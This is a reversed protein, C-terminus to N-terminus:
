FPFSVSLHYFNAAFANEAEINFLAKFDIEAPGFNYGVLPGAMVLQIENGNAAATPGTDKTIQKTFNGGAGVVWKGINKAATLDLYFVTGSQYNTDTDKTNIDFVAHGTFDWGNELYSLALDPEVTWFDNAIGTSARLGHAIAQTQTNGDNAYISLGAKFFLPHFNWSLNIPSFITNFLGNQISSGGGVQSLNLNQESYPQVLAVAYTAGLINLGPVWLVSPINLYATVNAPLANGSNNRLGGNIIVNDDSAYFGAPPLAGIPTGVSVGPLYPTNGEVAFAQGAFGTAAVVGATAMLKALKSTM